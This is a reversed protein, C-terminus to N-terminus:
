NRANMRYFPQHSGCGCMPDPEYLDPAHRRLKRSLELRGQEEATLPAALSDALEKLIAGRDIRTFERNLLIPQGAVIVTDVDRSKARGLVAELIPVGRDLYPYSIANWDVLVVDAAKGPELTGIKSAFPTTQAGYETAMRFVQTATPVRDHVGPERHLNLVMRMEQLMDRDDNLGAEDIGIAVKVGRAEFANLPAVGDRVRLNSSANHCIMTGTDAALEIDAETFWVGHGVTLRPGLMGLRHLHQLATGGSREAAYQKQYVTESLHMHMPVNYKAACDRILELAADSCWHLNSPALQIEVRPSSEHQRYLSEFLSINDELPITQRTLAESLSRGVDEPLRSVYDEDSIYSIRNQDRVSHSYSVRMGIADYAEIVQNAREVMQEVTGGLRNHLHQVTTVGSEILEFASYLTDLYLDVNRKGLRSLWWVELAEDVAGMQLPTLGVHHHSNVLGPMAVHTQSGIIEDADYKEKLESSKGVEVVIGDRQYIAGDEVIEVNHRDLARTIVYKGLILSSAM